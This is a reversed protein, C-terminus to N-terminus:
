ITQRKQEPPHQETPQIGAQWTFPQLNLEWDPCTGPICALDGTERACGHTEGEREGERGRERFFLYIFDEKLFQFDTKEM